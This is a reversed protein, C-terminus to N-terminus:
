TKLQADINPTIEIGCQELQMRLGDPQYLYEDWVGAHPIISESWFQNVLPEMVEFLFRLTDCHYDEEDPVAFHISANRLKGFKLFEGAKGMRIGTTAWLVEPLENYQITRGFEYLQQINLQDPANTSKPLTNFLLLPHEQAIRAKVVLEAGHAAHGVAMLHAYPRMMESFTLDYAARGLVAMGFARMHESVQRTDPHM